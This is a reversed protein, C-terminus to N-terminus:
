LQTLKQRLKSDEAYIYLGHVGRTMLVNVINKLNDVVDKNSWEKAVSPKM